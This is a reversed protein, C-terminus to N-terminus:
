EDGEYMWADRSDEEEEEYPASMSPVGEADDASRAAFAKAIERNLQASTKPAEQTAGSRSLAEDIERQLQAPSKKTAHHAKPQEAARGAKAEAKAAKAIAQLIKDRDTGTVAGKASSIYDGDRHYTAILKGDKGLDVVVEVIGASTLPVDSPKNGFSGREVATVSQVRWGSKIPATGRYAKQWATTM